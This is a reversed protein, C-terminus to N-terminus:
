SVFSHRRKSGKRSEVEGSPWSAGLGSQSVPQSPPWTVETYVHHLTFHAPHWFIVAAVKNLPNGSKYLSLPPGQNATPVSGVWDIMWDGSSWFLLLCRKQDCWLSLKDERRRTRRKFELIHFRQSAAWFQKLRNSVLIKPPKRGCHWRLVVGQHSLIQGLRWGSEWM